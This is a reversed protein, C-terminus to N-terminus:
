AEKCSVLEGAGLHEGAHELAEEHGSHKSVAHQSRPKIFGTVGKVPNVYLDAQLLDAGAGEEGESGDKAAMQQRTPTRKSSMPRWRQPLLTKTGDAEEVHKLSPM